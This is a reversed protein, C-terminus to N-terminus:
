LRLEVLSASPIKRDESHLMGSAAVEDIFTSRCSGNEFTSEQRWALGPSDFGKM